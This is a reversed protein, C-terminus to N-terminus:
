CSSRQKKVQLLNSLNYKCIIDVEKALREVVELDRWMIIERRQKIDIGVQNHFEVFMLEM